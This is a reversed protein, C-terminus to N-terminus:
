FEAGLLKFYPFIWESKIGPTYKYGVQLQWRGTLLVALKIEYSDYRPENSRGWGHHTDIHCTWLPSFRFQFRSLLTDRGDSVPSHLLEHIPRDIDLIYNDHDAKRWDYKSRHRFEVAFAANESITWETRINTRDFLLEQVNYVIDTAVHWSPYSFEWTTYLKPVTRGFATHGVFVNTYLDLTIDPLLPNAIPYFAQFVGPRFLNESAYGDEISFIYHKHNPTTPSTLGQYRFYPQLTHNFCPYTKYLRTNLDFGFNGIAQGVAHHHLNNTYFIGVFGASPTFTIPGWNFRRYLTNNTEFRGAKSSPLYQTLERSYVYDLYGASFWNDFILGSNGLPFPRVDLTVLPLQQNINQFYNIRPQLNLHAFYNDEHHSVWLITRKQTNLEFDDSKFDQPMKDDSLRDYCMYFKTKDNQSHTTVLGQLRYRKNGQEDDVLKDYAGYNKTQFVTRGDRSHYDTEIAAGPGRKFRYDLRGFLSFTETSYLEYRMSIKQKLVQDWIMKYRIPSDKVMKLDFKFSPIWFVPINFFKIKINKASLLSNSNIDIKGSRLEWWADQSEVTTLYANSIWFSGDPLLEIEDGGVFWYDTSTRGELMTGTKTLLDYELKKGIFIRGNYELLLDGEATIKRIAVGNEIRNTYEIHRAQIRLESNSIIGGQDTSITGNTFVPDKLNITYETPICNDGQLTEDEACLCSVALTIPLLFRKM